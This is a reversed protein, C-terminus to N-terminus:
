PRLLKISKGKYGVRFSICPKSIMCASAIEEKIKEIAVKKAKINQRNTNWNNFWIAQNIGIFILLIEGLVYRWNLVPKSKFIKRRM